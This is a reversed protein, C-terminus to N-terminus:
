KVRVSNSMMRWQDVNDAGLPARMDLSALKGNGYILFRVAELRIQKSTVANPESNVAYDIRVADGGDLKVQKIDAIEVARGNATLDAADGSTANAVTPASSASTVDVTVTNYKDSFVAGNATDNRSWGEPVQLTAGKPATYTIFIQNDPIDGPPNHEAAIPAEGAVAPMASGVALLSTLAVVLVATRNRFHPM